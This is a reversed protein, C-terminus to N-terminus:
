WTQVSMKFVDQHEQLILFMSKFLVQLMGFSWIFKYFGVLFSLMDGDDMKNASHSFTAPLYDALYELVKEVGDGAWLLIDQYFCNSM